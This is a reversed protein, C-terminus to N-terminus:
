LGVVVKPQLLVKCTKSAAWNSNDLCIGVEAVFDGVATPAIATLKGAGAGTDATGLALYVPAGNTPSGGDTTFKAADIIGGVTMSGATGENAGFCYSSAEADADTKTMTNAASVYGFDGDALGTTTLGTVVLQSGTVASHTHLADANSGNLLTDVNPATWNATTIPTGAIGFNIGSPVDLSGNSVVVAGAGLVEVDVAFSANGLEIKEFNDTTTVDIYADSGQQVLFADALNDALSITATKTADMDLTFAETPDLDIAGGSVTLGAAATLAATTVDLGATADVNGTLTVLGTGTQTLASDAVAMTWSGATGTFSFDAGIVDLGANADLNGGFDAQGTGFNWTPNGAATIATAGAGFDTDEDISMDAGSFSHTGTSTVLFDFAGGATFDGGIVDLGANADLNGGFDAQGTGFDWTPNGTAVVSDGGFTVTDGAGNGLTVDDQFTTSGIITETGEVEFDGKITTLKGVRGIDISEASTGGITLAPTGVGTVTDITVNADSSGVVAIGCEIGDSVALRKTKGADIYTPRYNAM